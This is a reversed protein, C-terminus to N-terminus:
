NEIVPIPTTANPTPSPSSVPTPTTSPSPVPTLETEDARKKATEEAQRQQEGALAEQRERRARDAERQADKRRQAAVSDKLEEALNEQKAKETSDLTKQQEDQAAENTKTENWTDLSHKLDEFKPQIDSIAQLFKNRSTVLEDMNAETSLETDLLSRFVSLSTHLNARNPTIIKSDTDKLLQDSQEVLEQFMHRTQQELRKATAHISQLAYVYAQQSEHTQHHKLLGVGVIGSVIFGCVAMFASTGVVATKKKKSVSQWWRKM